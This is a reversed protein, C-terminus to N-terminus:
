ANQRGRQIGSRRLRDMAIMRKQIMGMMVMVEDTEATGPIDEDQPQIEPIVPVEESPVQAALPNAMDRANLAELSYNQQQMYVSDGGELAVLNMRRRAENPAYIAGAVGQALMRIKTESDMRFLVDLDLEVAQDDGLDLGNDLCTEMSEIHSQLCQIYYDQTLAEINNYSPIDGVGIKYPPVHYTSCVVEATWRLQEIMQSDVASMRLPEFKLGDGLVAVKGAKEGTYGTEWYTKLREATPTSIPGPATLIGSPYAGNKFFAESDVQMKIGQSAALAGAFLPSIGVMPHFLCNARDHIIESAPVIVSANPLGSLNDTNLQYFVEGEPAVYVTVRTPDLIYLKVITGDPARQKLVYTNGRIIKSLIWFEKFQIHNQYPSPNRMLASYPNVDA